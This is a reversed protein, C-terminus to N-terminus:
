CGQTRIDGCQSRTRYRAPPPCALAIMSSPSRCCYGVRHRVSPPAPLDLWVVRLAAMPVGISYRCSMVAGLRLMKLIHCDAVSRFCRTSAYPGPRAASERGTTSTVPAASQVVALRDVQWRGWTRCGRVEFRASGAAVNGDVGGM